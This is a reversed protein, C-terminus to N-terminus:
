GRVGVTFGLKILVHRARQSTFYEEKFGSGYKNQLTKRVVQKIPYQQTQGNQDSLEVYYDRITEPYRLQKAAQVIDLDSVTHPTGGMKFNVL